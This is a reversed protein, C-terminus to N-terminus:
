GILKAWKERGLSIIYFFNSAAGNMSKPPKHGIVFTVIERDDIM